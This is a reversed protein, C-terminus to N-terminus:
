YDQAAPKAVDASLDDWSTKQVGGAGPRGTNGYLSLDVGYREAMSKDAARKATYTLKDYKSENKKGM